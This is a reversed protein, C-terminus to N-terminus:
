MSDILKVSAFRTLTSRTNSVKTAVYFYPAFKYKSKFTSGDQWGFSCLWIM